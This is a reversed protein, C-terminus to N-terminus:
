LIAVWNTPRELDVVLCTFNKMEHWETQKDADDTKTKTESSTPRRRLAQGDDRLESGDRNGTLSMAGEVPVSFCMTKDIDLHYVPVSNASM